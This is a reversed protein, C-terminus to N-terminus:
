PRNGFSYNTQKQLVRQLPHALLKAACDHIKTANRSVEYVYSYGNDLNQLSDYIEACKYLSCEEEHALLIDIYFYLQKKLFMFYQDDQAILPICNSRGYLVIMRLVYPPPIICDEQKYEPIEIKQKLIQFVKKFDFSESTSEEANIYDIVNIIDKLNNTFNQIWCPETDKLILLAFETKHNIAYKSHIFFDLIRKLMNIPTFTTGDALRYLSTNDDYCTDLCIIIREPININPVNPKQFNALVQQQLDNFDDTTKSHESGLDSFSAPQSNNPMDSSAMEM